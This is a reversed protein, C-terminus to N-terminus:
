HNTKFCFYGPNIGVRFTDIPLGGSSYHYVEGRQVHDKADAVFLHTSWPDVGLSYFGGVYGPPYNSEIVVEATAGDYVALKYVHRNIYFLTDGTGNIQLDLPREEEDFRIVQETERTAANIKVLGAAEHGFPHGELGGDCLVWIKNFRDIVMSAPQRLVTISDVLADTESNIVLIKDDFSWSNTFIFKDHQVMQETPHQYYASANNRVDISGSITNSLPDIITISKAYLDTVYAKDLSLMHMYRPSTLGTIKGAYAFSHTNFAYIKGSNNVVVYGISDSITMSHAVDGLPLGNISYFIDQHIEGTSYDYFSLSANDYTLNGENLIFVGASPLRKSETEQWLLDDEM